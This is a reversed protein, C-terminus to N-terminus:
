SSRGALRPPREEAAMRTLLGVLVGIIATVTTAGGAPYTLIVAMVTALFPMGIMAATAAGIAAATLASLSTPELMLSTMTALLAGVAVAPFIQGGRFGGGLSFTFAVLKGVLVLSATGLSTISLYEPMASQGSFLVLDLDVDTLGRVAIACLAVVVGSGVITALPARAAVRAIGQGGSRALLGLVAVVIALPIAVAVDILQVAPYSPLDPLGLAVEGLGTWPKIGVQLTYGSALAALAAMMVPTSIAAAGARSASILAFELLLIATILPNGFIAGVAAIGGALMMVQRVPSASNRVALAGLATGIALLPAEPGLVAGFSLSGLAALIVSLIQAPTIDMAFGELPAHGGHGPLRSAWFTILAGTVLLGLVLWWPASTRGMAEPLDTWLWRQLNHELAVFAAAGLGAILGVVVALGCLLAVQRATPRPVAGAAQEVETPPTARADM